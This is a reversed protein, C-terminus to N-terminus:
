TLIRRFAVRNGWGTETILERTLIRDSRCNGGVSEQGRGGWRGGHYGVAVGAPQGTSCLWFGAAEGWGWHSSGDKSGQTVATAKETLDQWKAWSGVMDGRRMWLLAWHSWLETRLRSVRHGKSRIQEGRGRAPRGAPGAAPWVPQILEWGPTYQTQKKEKHHTERVLFTLGM